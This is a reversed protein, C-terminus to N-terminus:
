SRFTEKWNLEGGRGETNTEQKDITRVKPMVEKYLEDKIERYLARDQSLPMVLKLALSLVFVETFLPDFEKVDTIRRIYNLDCSSENILIKKGEIKYKYQYVGDPENDDYISIKALFDNPLKFSSEYEGFPPTSGKVLRARETAFRWDNSRLLADRTQEYNRNCHPAIVGTKAIVGTSDTLQATTVTKSGIRGLALNCIDTKSEPLAM